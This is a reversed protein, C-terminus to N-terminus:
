ERIFEHLGAMNATAILNPERFRIQRERIQYDFISYFGIDDMFTIVTRVLIDRRLDRRYRVSQRWIMNSYAELERPNPNGHGFIDIIREQPISFDYM